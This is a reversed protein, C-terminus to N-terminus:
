RPPERGKTFIRRKSDWLDVAVYDPSEGLLQEAIAQAMARDKARVLHLSPAHLREHHLYIKFTRMRGGPNAPVIGSPVGSALPMIRM